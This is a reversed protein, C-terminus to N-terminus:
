MIKYVYKLCRIRMFLVLVGNILIGCMEGMTFLNRGAGYFFGAPHGANPCGAEVNHKM